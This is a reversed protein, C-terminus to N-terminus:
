HRMFFALFPFDREFKELITVIDYREVKTLGFMKCQESAQTELGLVLKLVSKLDQKSEKSKKTTNWM